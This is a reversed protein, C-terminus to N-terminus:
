PGRSATPTGPRARLPGPTCPTGGGGNAAGWSGNGATGVAPRGPARRGRSDPVGPARQAALPALLPRNVTSQPPQVLRVSARSTAVGVPHCVLCRLPEGDRPCWRLPGRLIWGGAIGAALLVLGGVVTLAIVIYRGRAVRLATRQPRDAM